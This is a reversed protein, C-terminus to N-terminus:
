EVCLFKTKTEQYELFPHSDISKKIKADIPRKQDITYYFCFDFTM